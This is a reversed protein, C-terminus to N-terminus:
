SLPLLRQGLLRGFTLAPTVLMGGCFSQGMLQGAGLVEGAAYLNPIPQGDERIVRLQDDVALGVTSSTSFGQMRIAYFPGKEIPLPLHERGLRDDGSAVAENYEAVSAALREVPLGCARALEELSDRRYLMPQEDFAAILQERSWGVVGVPAQRLIADDFVIWYRFDPQELLAHERVDVSPVDERVFREGHANVYIEWPPRREPYSNFRAVPKSQPSDDAMIAGFNPLYNERGRLYGGAAQGLKLGIGQAYEYSSDAYDRYGSVAEFLEPNSGYGGSALLVQGGRYAHEHGQADEARVGRVSGDPDQILATVRTQLALTVRGDELAPQLARELVELVSLGNQVGWYYRLQSYPEHANGAVPHGEIMQFGGDMLWDFTAAANDVALRVLTPDATNNSIRMIDEYHLDPTDTIGKDQQVRTGAASMQGHAILLSGGIREAADLMLVRADREAAFIAATLGATGAGVVILDWNQM